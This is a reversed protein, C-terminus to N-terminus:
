RTPTPLVWAWLEELGWWTKKQEELAQTLCPLEAASLALKEWLDDRGSLELKDEHTGIRGQEEGSWVWSGKRVLQGPQGTSDNAGTGYLWYDQMSKEM